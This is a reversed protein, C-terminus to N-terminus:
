SIPSSKKDLNAAALNATFAAAREEVLPEAEVVVGVIQKSGCHLSDGSAWKLLAATTGPCRHVDVLAEPAEPQRRRQALVKM